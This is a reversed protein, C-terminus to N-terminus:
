HPPSHLGRSGGDVFVLLGDMSASLVGIGDGDSCTIGKWSVEAWMPLSSRFCLWDRTSACPSPPSADSDVCVGVSACM